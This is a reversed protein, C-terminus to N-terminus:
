CAHKKWITQGEGNVDGLTECGGEQISFVAKFLVDDSPLNSLLAGGLYPMGPVFQLPKQIKQEMQVSLPALRRHQQQICLNDLYLSWAEVSGAVPDREGASRRAARGEM